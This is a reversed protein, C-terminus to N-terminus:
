TSHDTASDTTGGQGHNFLDPRNPVFQVLGVTIPVLKGNSFGETGFINVANFLM